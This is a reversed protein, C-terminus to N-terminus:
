LPLSGKSLAQEPRHFRHVHAPCRHREKTGISSQGGVHSRLRASLDLRRSDIFKPALTRASRSLSADYPSGSRNRTLTSTSPTSLLNGPFEQCIPLSGPLYKGASMSSSSSRAKRHKLSARRCTSLRTRIRRTFKSQM